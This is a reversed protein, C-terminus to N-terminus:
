KPSSSRRMRSIAPSTLPPSSPSRRMSSVTSSSLTSSPKAANGVRRLRPCCVRQRPGIRRRLPKPLRSWFSSRRCTLLGDRQMKSLQVYGGAWLSFILIAAMATLPLVLVKM